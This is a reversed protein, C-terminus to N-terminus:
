SRSAACLRGLEERAQRFALIPVYTQIPAGAFREVAEGFRRAILDADLLQGFERTLRERQEDLVRASAAHTPVM